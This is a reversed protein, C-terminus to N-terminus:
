LNFGLLLRNNSCRGTGVVIGLGAMGLGAMGLGAMGPGVMGLGTSYTCGGHKNGCHHCDQRQSVCCM